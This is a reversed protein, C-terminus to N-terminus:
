AERSPMREGQETLSVIPFADPFEAIFNLYATVPLEKPEPALSDCLWIRGLISRLAVWHQNVKNVVAGKCRHIFSPNRGLPELRMEFEQRGSYRMPTSRVAYALVESSYWGGPSEHDSRKELLGEQRAELLYQDCAHVMDEPKQWDRGLANNLAHMACLADKQLQHFMRDSNAMANMEANDERQKEYEGVDHEVATFYDELRRQKRIAKLLAQDRTAISHFRGQCKHFAQTMLEDDAETYIIRYEGQFRAIYLPQEDAECAQMKRKKLEVAFINKFKNGHRKWASPSILDKLFDTVRVVHEDEDLKVLADGELIVGVDVLSHSRNSRKHFDWPHTRQIEYRVAQVVSSRLSNAIAAIDAPLLPGNSGSAVEVAEGFIRQPDDPRRTALDEQYGRMRCVEQVLMPDGGLYRVLLAAAQQRVCAAYHGPLIMIIEVIGQADTVLTTKQGKGPFKYNAFRSCVEPHSIQLREVYNGANSGTQEAIAAVVDVVSILPPADSTRRINVIDM